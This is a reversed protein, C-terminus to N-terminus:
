LSRDHLVVECYIVDIFKNPSDVIAGTSFYDGLTPLFSVMFLCSFIGVLSILLIQRLSVESMFILCFMKRGAGVVM